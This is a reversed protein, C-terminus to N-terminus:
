RAARLLHIAVRVSVMRCHVGSVKHSADTIIRRAEGSLKTQDDLLWFFACTDLVYKM